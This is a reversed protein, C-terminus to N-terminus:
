NFGSEINNIAEIEATKSYDCNIMSSTKGGAGKSRVVRCVDYMMGTAYLVLTAVILIQVMTDTVCLELISGIHLTETHCFRKFHEISSTYIEDEQDKMCRFLKAVEADVKVSTMCKIYLHAPLKQIVHLAVHNSSDRQLEDQYWAVVDANVMAALVKEHRVMEFADEYSKAPVIHARYDVSAAKAEYSNELVAVKQGYVSFDGLGSVFNSVTATMVCLVMVGSFLWIVTLMRGPLSRPTIDGYGVTTMSVLGFWLSTCCGKLFSQPFNVDYQREILWYFFSFIFAVLMAIVLVPRCSLFGRIIKSPLDIYHRGVIVAIESTKMLQFSRFGAKNEWEHDLLSVIPVWFMQEKSINSLAKNGNVMADHFKERTLFSHTFTIANTNNQDHHLCFHQARQFIMPIIGDVSGQENIFIFPKVHWFIGELLTNNSTQQPPISSSPIDNAFSSFVFQFWFFVLLITM